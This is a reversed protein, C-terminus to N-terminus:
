PAFLMCLNSHIANCTCSHVIYVHIHTDTYTHSHSHTHIHILSYSLSQGGAISGMAFRYVPELFSFWPAGGDDFDQLSITSNHVSVLFLAM